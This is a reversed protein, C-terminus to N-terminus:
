GCWGLGAAPVSRSCGCPAFRAGGALKLEDCDANTQALGSADVLEAAADPAVEGVRAHGVKADRVTSGPQRVRRHHPSLSPTRFGRRLHTTDQVHEHTDGLGVLAARAPGQRRRVAMGAGLVPHCAGAV